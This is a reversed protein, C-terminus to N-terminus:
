EARGEQCRRACVYGQLGLCEFERLATLPRERQCYLCRATTTPPAPWFGRPTVIVTAQPHRPPVRRADWEVLAWAGCIAAIFLLEGAM